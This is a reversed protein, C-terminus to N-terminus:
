IGYLECLFQSNQWVRERIDEEMPDLSIWVFVELNSFSSSNLRRFLLLYWIIDYQKTNYVFWILSDMKWGKVKEGERKLLWLIAEECGLKQDDLFSPGTKSHLLGIKKVIEGCRWRQASPFPPHYPQHNLFGLCGGPIHKKVKYIIPYVVLRLHHLIEEM